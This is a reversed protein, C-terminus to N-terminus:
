NKCLWVSFGAKNRKVAFDHGGKNIVAFGNGFESNHYAYDFAMAAATVLYIPAHIIVKIEPEKRM